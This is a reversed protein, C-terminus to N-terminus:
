QGLVAMERLFSEQTWPRGNRDHRDRANLGDVLADLETVGEAFVEELAEVLELEFPGPVSQRTQWVPNAFGGPVEIHGQGPESSPIIRQWTKLQPNYDQQAM